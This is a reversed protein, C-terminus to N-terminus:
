MAVARRTRVEEARRIKVEEARRTRVAEATRPRVVEARGKKGQGTMTVIKHKLENVQEQLYKVAM